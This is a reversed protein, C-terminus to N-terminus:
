FLPKIISIFVKLIKRSDGEAHLNWILLGQITNHQFIQNLYTNNSNSVQIEYFTMLHM